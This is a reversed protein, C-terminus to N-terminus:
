HIWSATEGWGSVVMGNVRVGISDDIVNSKGKGRWTVDIGVGEGEGGVTDYIDNSAGKGIVSDMVGGCKRLSVDWTARNCTRPTGLPCWAGRTRQTRGGDTGDYDISISVKWIACISVVFITM